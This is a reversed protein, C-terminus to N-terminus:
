PLPSLALGDWLLATLQEALQPAGIEAAPDNLWWLGVMHLAGVIAYGWAQAPAPDVGVRARATATAEVIPTASRRAFELTHALTLDGGSAGNVFAYLHRHAAQTELSARIMATLADRGPPAAAIAAKGALDIRQLLREALARVIARRDGVHAFLVPKTVGAEAAIRDLSVSPGARRIAREAADLLGGRDISPPRGRRRAGADSVPQLARKKQIKKLKPSPM